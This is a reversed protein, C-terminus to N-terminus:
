PTPLPVCSYDKGCTPLTPGCPSTVATPTAAGPTPTLTPAAGGTPTATPAVVVIGANSLVTTYPTGGFTAESTRPDPGVNLDVFTGASVAIAQFRVTVLTFTTTPYSSFIGAAYNVQGPTAHDNQLVNPLTPGPTTSVVFLVAADYNLYAAAGDVQNSNPLVRVTLDFQSGLTVTSSLPQIDMGVQGQAPLAVVLLALIGLIWKM